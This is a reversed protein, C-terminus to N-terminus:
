LRTACPLLLLQTSRGARLVVALWVHPRPSHYWLGTTPWGAHDEDSPVPWHIRWPWGQGHATRSLCVSGRRVRVCGSWTWARWVQSGRLMDASSMGTSMAREGVLVHVMTVERVDLVFWWWWTQKNVLQCAVFSHCTYLIHRLLFSCFLCLNLIFCSYAWLACVEASCPLGSSGSKPSQVGPDSAHDLDGGFNYWKTKSGHGIGVFFKTLIRECTQSYDSPCVSLCVSLCVFLGCWFCLRRRRHLYCYSTYM